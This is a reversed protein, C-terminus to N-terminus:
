GKNSHAHTHAECVDQHTHLFPYQIFDQVNNHVNILYSSTARITTVDEYGLCDSLM